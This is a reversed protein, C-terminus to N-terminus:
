FALLTSYPIKAWIVHVAPHPSVFSLRVLTEEFQPAIYSSLPPVGCSFTMVLLKDFPQGITTVRHVKPVDNCGISNQRSDFSTVMAVSPVVEVIKLNLIQITQSKIEYAFLLRALITLWHFRTSPNQPTGQCPWRM